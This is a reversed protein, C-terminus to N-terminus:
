HDGESMMRKSRISQILRLIGPVDVKKDGRYWNEWHGRAARNRVTLFAELAEQAEALHGPEGHALKLARICQLLARWMRAQTLLHVDYFSKMRLPIERTPYEDIIRDLQAIAADFAGVPLGAPGPKGEDLATLHRRIAMFVAGDQLLRGGDIALFSAMLLRYAEHLCPPSWRCLFMEPDWPERMATMAAQIGLVHERINCVNIIAYQTDGKGIVQDFVM